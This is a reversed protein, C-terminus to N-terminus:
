VIGAIFVFRQVFDNRRFRVMGAREDPSVYQVRIVEQGKFLGKKPYEIGIVRVCMGENRKSRWRAGASFRHDDTTEVRDNDSLSKNM